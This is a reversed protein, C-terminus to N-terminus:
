PNTGSSACAHGFQLTPGRASPLRIFFTRRATLMLTLLQV